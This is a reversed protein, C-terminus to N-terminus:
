VFQIIPPLPYPLPYLVHSRQVGLIEVPRQRGLRLVRGPPPLQQQLPRGHERPAAMAVRASAQAPAFPALPGILGSWVGPPAVWIRAKARVAPPEPALGGLAFVPLGDTIGIIGAQPELADSDSKAIGWWDFGCMALIALTGVLLSQALGPYPQILGRFAEAEAMAPVRLAFDGLVGELRPWNSSRIM